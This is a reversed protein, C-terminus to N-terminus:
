AVWVSFSGVPAVLWYRADPALQDALGGQGGPKIMAHDHYSRVRKARALHRGIKVLRESFALSAAVPSDVWLNVLQGFAREYEERSRDGSEAGLIRDRNAGISGDIASRLWEIEQKSLFNQYRIFSSKRYVPVGQETVPGGLTLVPTDHRKFLSLAAASRESERGSKRGEAM